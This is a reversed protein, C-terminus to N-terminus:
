EIWRGPIWRGQIDYHGYVWIAEASPPPPINEKNLGLPRACGFVLMLIMSLFVIKM